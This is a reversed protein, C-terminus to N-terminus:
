ENNNELDEIKLNYDEENSNELNENNTELKIANEDLNKTKNILGNTKTEQSKEGVNNQKKNLSLIFFICLLIVGVCIAIDAFNFIPFNMFDLSIFDRVYGLFLRDILNGVAGGIILGMSISYFINKNKYMYNAVLIVAIFLISMVILIWTHQNLLSWAGGTNYSSFISVFGKILTKAEGDTVAKAILDSLIVITTLVFTLIGFKFKNFFKGILTKFSNM